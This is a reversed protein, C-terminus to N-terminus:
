LGKVAARLDAENYQRVDFNTRAAEDKRHVALLHPVDPRSEDVLLAANEDAVIAKAEDLTM